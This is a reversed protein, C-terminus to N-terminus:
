QVLQQPRQPVSLPTETGRCATGCCDENIPRMVLNREGVKAWEWTGPNTYSSTSIGMVKDDISRLVGDRWLFRAEQVESYSVEFTYYGEEDAVETIDFIDLSDVENDWAFIPQHGRVVLTDGGAREARAWTGTPYGTFPNYIYVCGDDGEVLTGILGDDISAGIYGEENYYYDSSRYLNDHLTGAPQDVIVGDAAASKMVQLPQVVGVALKDNAPIHKVGYPTTQAM